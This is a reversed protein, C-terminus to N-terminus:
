FRWTTTASVSASHMEAQNFRTKVSTIGPINLIHTTDTGHRTRFNRYNGVLGLSWNHWIEWRAGLTAVYGFGNAEHRFEGIDTRLNWHGKARYSFFHWEFGGFLYACREVKTEFDLGLWPGFWRANYTSNLGPFPGLAGTINNITYRGDYMHLDQGHWSYGVMPIAIFRGYTSTIRYGAGSLLDYVHGKGAKSKSQLYIADDGNDDLAFDSDTAEGHYIHGYDGALKLAYNRCSVYTAEGGFQVIRLDSWNLESLLRHTGGPTVGPTLDPIVDPIIGPILDPTMDPASFSWQFKDKRFGAGVNVNFASPWEGSFCDAPLLGECCNASLSSYSLVWTSVILLFKRM